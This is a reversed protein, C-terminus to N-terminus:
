LRPNFLHQTFFSSDHLIIESGVLSINKIEEITQSSLNEFSAFYQQVVFASFWKICLNTAHILSKPLVSTQLVTSTTEWLILFLLISSFFYIFNYVNCDVNIVAYNVCLLFSQKCLIKNREGVLLAKSHLIHM